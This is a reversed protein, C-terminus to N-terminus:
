KVTSLYSLYKKVQAGTPTAIGPMYSSYASFLQLFITPSVSKTNGAASNSAKIIQAMKSYSCSGAGLDSPCASGTKSHCVECGNKKFEALGAKQSSMPVCKGPLMVNPVQGSPCKPAANALVGSFLIVFVAAIVSPFKKM